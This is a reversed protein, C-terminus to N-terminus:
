DQDLMAAARQMWGLGALTDGRPRYECGIWGKYGAARLEKLGHFIDLEGEDPEHRDPVSAIQVHGILPALRRIAHSVDGEMIQAHYLDYQLKLNPRGIEGLIAEAQRPTTLLYGPMDRGNLPEITVTLGAGAAVGALQDLHARYTALGAERGADGVLGAMCHITRCGLAEAYALAQDISARFADERGPVGALGREGRAWDGPPLNILAQSLGADRLRAALESAPHDYPFLIEVGRFGGRAALGFRELMAVEQFLFSLNAALRM